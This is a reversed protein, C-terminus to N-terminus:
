WHRLPETDIKDYTKGNFFETKLTEGTHLNSLTLVRPRSTPLSAMAVNPLLAMGAAATGGLLLKRRTLNFSSM